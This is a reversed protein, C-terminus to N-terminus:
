NASKHSSPKECLFIKCLAEITEKSQDELIATNKDENLLKWDRLIIHRYALLQTLTISDKINDLAQLVRSLTIPNCEWYKGNEFYGDNGRVMELTVFHSRKEKKIAEEWPLGHLKSIIAQALEQTKNM